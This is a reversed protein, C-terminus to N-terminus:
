YPIFEPRPNRLRPQVIAPCLSRINLTGHRPDASDGNLSENDVRAAPNGLPYSVVAEFGVIDITHCPGIMPALVITM